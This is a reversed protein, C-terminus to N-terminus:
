SDEEEPNEKEPDNWRNVAMQVSESFVRHGCSDCELATLFRHRTMDSEESFIVEGSGCKPCHGIWLGRHFWGKPGADKSEDEFGDATGKSNTNHPLDELTKRVVTGICEPSHRGDHVAGCVPCHPYSSLEKDVDILARFLQASKVMLEVNSEYEEHNMGESFPVEAVLTGGASRIQTSLPGREATWPGLSHNM